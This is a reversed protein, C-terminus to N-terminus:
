FDLKSKYNYSKTRQAAEEGDEIRELDNSPSMWSCLCAVCNRMMTASFIFFAVFFLLLIYLERFIDHKYVFCYVVMMFLQLLTSFIVMTMATCHVSSNVKSPNFVYFLNHRDVYYKAIGYALGFPTILPCTLSFMISVTFILLYQAYCEGFQFETRVASDIATKEARSKAFCNRYLYMFMESFRILELCNGTFAVFITYNILSAGSDPLFFCRFIEQIDHEEPAALVHFVATLYTFGFTPLIAVILVLYAYTKIM